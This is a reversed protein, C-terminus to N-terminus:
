EREDELDKGNNSFRFQSTLIGQVVGPDDDGLGRLSAEDDRYRSRNSRKHQQDEDDSESSLLLEVSRNRSPDLKVSKRTAM